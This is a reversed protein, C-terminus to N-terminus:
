GFASEQQHVLNSALGFDSAPSDAGDARKSLRIHL